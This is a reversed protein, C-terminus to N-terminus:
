SIEVKVRVEGVVWSPEKGVVTVEVMEVTVAHPHIGVNNLREIAQHCVGSITQEADRVRAVLDAVVMSDIQKM